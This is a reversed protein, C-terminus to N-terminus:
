ETMEDSMRPLKRRCANGDGGKSKGRSAGAYDFVFSPEGWDERQTRLPRQTSFLGSNPPCTGIEPMEPGVKSRPSQVKSWKRRGSGDAAQGGKKRNRPEPKRTRQEGFGGRREGRARRHLGHRKATGKGTEPNRNGTEANETGRIGRQTSPTSQPSPQANQVRCEASTGGMRSKGGAAGGAVSLLRRTEVCLGCLVCLFACIPSLCVVFLLSWPSVGGSRDPHCGAVGGRWLRRRLRPRGEGNRAGRESNRTGRQREGNGLGGEAHEAHEANFATGNRRGREPKRNGPEPKRNGRERNGSDGEAHEADEANFATGNEGNRRGGM